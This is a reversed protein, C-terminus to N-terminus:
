VTAPPLSPKGLIMDAAKEAIMIVAANINGGVLSPMVSADVVRLRDVGKVRLEPDVVAGAVADTGMRCTGAPHYVTTANNRAYADLDADSQVEPGPLVEREVYPRVSPEHFIRRVLRIGKRVSALDHDTSLFDMFIRPPKGPDTSALMVKGRSEPRLPTPRCGFGDAYPQRFPRMYPAASMPAVRFLLQLDPAALDPESKLFAMVNNPLSAALETGFLQARLLAIAIRDLRLAKNLPGPASRRCDVNASVHDQLNAGVGSLGVRCAIGNSRLQEPDGIGSLMLLHPSNIAGASLIVESQASLEHMGRSDSVRVAVAAKGEFVIETTLAGTFVRLNPRSLVPRLYAVAASCRRGKRITSQGRSFGEQVAGNFDATEPLGLSRGAELFAELLPDPFLPAAVSLPGDAGRYADAGGQWSEMRRFYPLVEAYSWGPAGDASWRDYDSRHGRVYAMANISSSGGIVRGRYVPIRRNGMTAAPETVYHWDHRGGLVVRGWALPIHLWPDTDWGGAEILAVRCSEEKSLRNALVCGASGGGVIVYDFFERM